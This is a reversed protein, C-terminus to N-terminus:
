TVVPAGTLLDYRDEVKNTTVSAITRLLGTALNGGLSTGTRFGSKDELWVFLTGIRWNTGAGPWPESDGAMFRRTMVQLEADELIPAAMEHWSQKITGTMITVPAVSQGIAGPKVVIQSQAWMGPTQHAPDLIDNGMNFNFVQLRMLNMALSAPLVWDAPGILFQVKPQQILSVPLFPNAAVHVNKLEEIDDLFTLIVRDGDDGSKLTVGVDAAARGGIRAGDKEVIVHINSTARADADLAWHALYTGRRDERDIPLEVVISGTDNLTLTVTGGLPAMVEGREVWNGDFLRIRAPQAVREIRARRIEDAWVAFDDVDGGPFPALNTTM